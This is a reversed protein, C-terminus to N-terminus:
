IKSFVLQEPIVTITYGYEKARKSVASRKETYSKSKPIDAGTMRMYQSRNLSFNDGKELLAIIKDMNPM